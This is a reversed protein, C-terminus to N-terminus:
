HLHCTTEEDAGLVQALEKTKEQSTTTKCKHSQTWPTALDKEVVVYRRNHRSECGESLVKHDATDGFIEASPVGTAKEPLGCSLDGRVEENDDKKYQNETKAPGHSSNGRVEESMSESRTPAPHETLTM